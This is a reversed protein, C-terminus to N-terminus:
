WRRRFVAIQGAVVDADGGFDVVCGQPFPPYLCLLLWSCRLCPRLLVGCPYRPRRLASCCAAYCGGARGAVTGCWGSVDANM